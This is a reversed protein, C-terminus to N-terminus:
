PHQKRLTFGITKADFTIRRRPKLIDLGHDLQTVVPVREARWQRGGVRRWVWRYGRMADRVAQKFMPTQTM